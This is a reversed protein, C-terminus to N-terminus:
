AEVPAATTTDKKAEKTPKKAEKTPKEVKAATAANYTTKYKAEKAANAEAAKALTHIIARRTDSNAAAFEAIKTNNVLLLSRLNVKEGDAITHVAKFKGDNDTFGIKYAESFSAILRRFTPPTYVGEKGDNTVFKCQKGEENVLVAFAEKLENNISEDSLIGAIVCKFVSKTDRNKLNPFEVYTTTTGKDTTRQKVVVAVNASFRVEEIKQGKAINTIM